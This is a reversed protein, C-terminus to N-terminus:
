RGAIVCPRSSSAGSAVLQSAMRALKLQFGPKRLVAIKLRAKTMMVHLTYMGLSEPPTQM